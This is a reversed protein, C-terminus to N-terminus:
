HREDDVESEDITNPKSRPLGGNSPHIPTTESLNGDHLETGFGSAIIGEINMVQAHM